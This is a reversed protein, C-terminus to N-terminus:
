DKNDPPTPKKDDPPPPSPMKRMFMKGLEDLDADLEGTILNVAKLYKYTTLSALYAESGSLRYTDELSQLFLTTQQILSGLQSHLTIDNKLEQTSILPPVNEPNRELTDLLKNCFMRNKDNLRLLNNKEDDTLNVCFSLRQHIEQFSRKISDLDDQSLTTNVRNRNTPM